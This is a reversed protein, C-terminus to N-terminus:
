VSFVLALERVVLRHQANHSMLVSLVMVDDRDGCQTCIQISLFVTYQSPCGGM